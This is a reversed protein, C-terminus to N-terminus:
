PPTVARLTESLAEPDQRVPEIYIRDPQPRARLERLIAMMRRVNAASDTVILTRTPPHTTISGEPSSFNALLAAADAVSGERVRFLHVGFGDGTPIPGRDVVVPTARGEIGETGVIRDYAGARVVTLGQMALADVFLRWVQAPTSYGRGVVTLRVEPVAGTLIFRRGTVRAVFRVVEPLTADQFDVRVRRSARVARLKSGRGATRTSSERASAREARRGESSRDQALAVGLGGILVSAGVLSSLVASPPRM